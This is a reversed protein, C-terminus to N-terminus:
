DGNGYQKRFQAANKEIWEKAAEEGVDRGAKECENRIYERIKECEIRIIDESKM